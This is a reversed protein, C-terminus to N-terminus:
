HSPPETSYPLYVKHRLRSRPGLAAGWPWLACKLELGSDLTNPGNKACKTDLDRIKTQPFKFHWQWEVLRGRISAKSGVVLKKLEGKGGVALRSAM